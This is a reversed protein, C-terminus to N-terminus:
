PNRSCQAALAERMRRKRETPTLRGAPQGAQHRREALLRAVARHLEENERRSIELAARTNALRRRLDREVDTRSARDSGTRRSSRTPRSRLTTPM